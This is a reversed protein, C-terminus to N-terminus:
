ETKLAILKAKNSYLFITNHAAIPSVYIEKDVNYSELEEGTKPSFQVLKGHSGVVWLVNGALVPGSWFITGKKRKPHKYRPLDTVWKIGGNKSSIAILQRKENIIFLFDDAVWPPINGAIEREWVRSGSYVITSALLGDNSIAFVQNGNVVPSADIDTFTFFTEQGGSGFNDSWVVNGNEKKLAYLTGTSYPALVIDGVVTPSASGHQSIDEAVGSHKWLIGGDMGDLAYLHNDITNIYAKGDRADPASRALTHISRQWLKEGNDVDLALVENSGTTVYLKGQDYAMGGSIFFSRGDKIKIEYRWYRKSINHVDFASIVGRADMTIIKGDAIVPTMNMVNRKPGSGVDVSHKKTINGALAIHEPTLIHLGHSKYWRTNDQPLPLTVEVDDMGPEAILTKETSLISIREGELKAEKEKVGLTDLIQCGTLSTLIVLASPILFRRALKM